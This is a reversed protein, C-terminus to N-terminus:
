PILVIKVTKKAKALECAENVEELPMVKSIIPDFQLLGSKYLDQMQLYDSARFGQVTHIRKSDRVFNWPKFHVENGGYGSGCMIMVGSGALCDVANTFADPYGTAEVAFDVGEGDTIEMIKEVPDEPGDVIIHTAGLQKAIELRQTDDPLGVMILNVPSTLKMTQLLFLGFSGPGFVAINSGSLIHNTRIAKVAESAIEMIAAHKDPIFDPVKMLANQHVSVYEAFGGDVDIGWHIWHRCAAKGSICNRCEGCGVACTTFLRDGVKFKSVQSGIEVANGVFEHCPIVPPKVRGHRGMFTNNRINVDTGCLGAATVKLLVDNPGVKPMPVDQLFFEEREDLKVAARM